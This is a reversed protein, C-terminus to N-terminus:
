KAMSIVPSTTNFDSIRFGGKSGNSGSKRNRIQSKRRRKVLNDFLREYQLSQGQFSFDAQVRERGRRGMIRRGTENSLVDLIRRALAAPNGRPVLYGNMGDEVVEPTGGVATAVVPVGAAFAELAANPLGETHSPLVVLDFSPYYRDLERSFEALIFHRELSLRGIQLQLADHLPGDGFLVFGVAANKEAAVAAAQILVDFGKEPSLRGAAGVIWDRKEPFLQQLKARFGPDPKEFRDVDIANRIVAIRNRPVGARHVKRAQGESVCVVQDMFHLSIRDLMEYFRVKPTAATWGRSVAVVPIGARRAAVHGLLDAKYGHCCLIDARLKRLTESIERIVRGIYPKDHELLVTEFGHRQVQEMFPGSNGKEQFSLFVSRYSSPMARALGLM